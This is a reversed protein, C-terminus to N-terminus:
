SVRWVRFGLDTTRTSISFQRSGSVRRFKVVWNAVRAREKYFNEVNCEVLFSDGIEMDKFPYPCEMHKTAATLPINKEISFTM